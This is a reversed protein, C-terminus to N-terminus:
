ILDQRILGKVERVKLVSEKTSKSAVPVNKDDPHLKPTFTLQVILHICFLSVM